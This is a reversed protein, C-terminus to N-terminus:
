RTLSEYLTRDDYLFMEGPLRKRTRLANPGKTVFASIKRWLQDVSIRDAPNIQCCSRVLDLLDSSYFSRDDNTFVAIESADEPVLRARQDAPMAVRVDLNRRVQILSAITTGVAWVNVGSDCSALRVTQEPAEYGATGAPIRDSPVFRASGYDGVRFGAISPWESPHPNKLFVNAPKIDFHVIENTWFHSKGPKSPPLGYKMLYIAHALTEFVAWIAIEAIRGHLPQGDRDLRDQM